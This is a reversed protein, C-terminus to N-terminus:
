RARELRMGGTFKLQGRQVMPLIVMKVLGEPWSKAVANNAQVFHVLDSITAPVDDHALRELVAERIADRNEVTDTDIYHM